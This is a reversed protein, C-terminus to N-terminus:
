VTSYKLYHCRRLLMCYDSVSTLFMLFSEFSLVSPSISSLMFDTQSHSYSGIFLRSLSFVVLMQRLGKYNLRRRRTIKKYTYIQVSFWFGAFFAVCLYHLQKLYSGQECPKEWLLLVTTASWHLRCEKPLRKWSLAGPLQRTQRGGQLAGPLVMQVPMESYMLLSQHSVTTIRESM